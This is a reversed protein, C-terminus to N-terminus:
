KEEKKLREITEKVIAIVGEAWTDECYRNIFKIVAKPDKEAASRIVEEAWPMDMFLNANILVTGSNNEVAGRAAKEVIKTRNPMDDYAKSFALVFDPERETLRNIAKKIFQKGWTIEKYTKYSSLVREPSKELEVLAVAKACSMNININRSNIVIYEFLSPRKLNSAAVHIVEDFYYQDNYKNACRIADSPQNKAAILFLERANDM